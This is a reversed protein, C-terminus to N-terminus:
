KNKGRGEMKKLIFAGIFTVGLVIMYYVSNPMEKVGLCFEDVYKIVIQHLMFVEFSIKSLFGFMQCGMFRCIINQAELAFVLILSCVVPTYVVSYRFEDPIAIYNAFYDMAFLLLLIFIQFIGLFFKHKRIYIRNHMNREIFITGLLIGIFYDFIRYIPSIYLIAHIYETSINMAIIVSLLWSGCIGGLLRKNTKLKLAIKFLFPSMFYFFLIDSLYWSVSNYSFYIEGSLFFSQVLLLNPIAYEIARRIAYLSPWKWM